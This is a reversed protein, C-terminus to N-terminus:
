GKKVEPIQKKYEMFRKTGDAGIIEKAKMEKLLKVIRRKRSNPNPHTKELVKTNLAKRKKGLRTLFEVMADPTYGARIAYKVGEQDAEYEFKKDLGKELILSMGAKAAQLLGFGAGTAGGAYRAILSAMESKSQADPRKRVQVEQIKSSESSKEAEEALEERNKEKMNKLANFMHKKGVHAVEHGLIAALEAETKAERLTGLTLFIYGGPCAFANVMDTDLIGVMYKRDPYDGYGAVYTAVQNVYALVDNNGYSGYYQLLRGAMNRGVEVEAKYEEIQEKEAASLNSLESDEKRKNSTCSWLLSGAVFFALACKISLKRHGFNVFIEKSASM